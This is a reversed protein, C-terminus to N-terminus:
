KRDLCLRLARQMGHIDGDRFQQAVAAYVVDMGDHVAVACRGLARTPVGLARTEYLITSTLGVVERAEAAEVITPRSSVVVGLPAAFRKHLPHPCAVVERDAAVSAVFDEMTKFPSGLYIATDWPIQLPCVTKTGPNWTVGDFHAKIHKAARGRMSPSLWSLDGMLSSESVIGLTDFHFHNKQPLLGHEAVVWKLSHSDCVKRFWFDGPESGNWIVALDASRVAELVSKVGCWGSPPNVETVTGIKSLMEKILIKRPNQERYSNFFIVNVSLIYRSVILIPLVFV